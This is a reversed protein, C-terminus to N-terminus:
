RGAPWKEQLERFWSQVVRIRSPFAEDITVSPPAERDRRMLLLRGDLAVDYQRIPETSSYGGRFLKIPEGPTLIGDEVKIRVSYYDSEIPSGTYIIERGDRSWIPSVGGGTSIQIGEGPGPWPRVYIEPSGSENSSYVLWRGDPSFEPYMEDFRSHLFPSVPGGPTFMLIDWSDEEGDGVFALTEGGPSWSGARANGGIRLPLKEVQGPGSNVTKVFLAGQGERDSAFTFQDPGPGWIAFSQNAEFTQRRMTQRSLDFLWVDRPPHAMTFLVTLGDPSVRASLYNKSEVSLAQERGQRDVWSVLRRTEPFTTGSAYALVGSDSVSFQAVGTERNSSGTNISRGVRQLVVVESGVTEWSQLDFRIAMLQDERAFVLHGTPLYRADAGGDILLKREGTELSQIFVRALSWELGATKFRLATFLVAKGDPLFQPLRLSM